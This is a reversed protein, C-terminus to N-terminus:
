VLQRSRRFKQGPLSYIIHHPRLGAVAIPYLFDSTVKLTMGLSAIVFSFEGIQALCMGVRLATRSDNGGVFVGFSCALVKGLVVVLTIVLIPLWHEMLVKPDIMLGITVFFIASFMDRVPEVLNEVRHIERAEAIVAGILFAGLAVSYGLKVALLSVGFCLGLVTIILMENSKFRAVYAILRPV